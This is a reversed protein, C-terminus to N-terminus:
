LCRKYTSTEYSIWKRIRLIQIWNDKPFYSALPPIQDGDICCGEWARESILEYVIELDSETPNLMKLDVIMKRYPNVDVGLSDFGQKKGEGSM